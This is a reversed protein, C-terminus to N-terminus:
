SASHLFREMERFLEPFFQMYYLQCHEKNSELFDAATNLSNDAKIRSHMGKSIRDIGAIEAYGELWNYQIMYPLMQKSKEPLIDRNANMLSYTNSVFLSLSPEALPWNAALFHDHFIDAVVGSFKGFQPRLFAFYEKNIPHTDTFYDIQRHMRIGELIKGEYLKSPDGKVSDAIFNGIMLEDNHRSLYLHALFNM